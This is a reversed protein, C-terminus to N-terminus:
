LAAAKEYKLSRFKFTQMMIQFISMLIMLTFTFWGYAIALQVYNTEGYFALPTLFVTQVVNVWGTVTWESTSRMKRM